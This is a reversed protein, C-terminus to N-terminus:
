KIEKEKTSSVFLINGIDEYDSFIKIGEAKILESRFGIITLDADASKESIIAKPNTMSEVPIPEVNSPSIPLRGSKILKLLDERKRDMDDAPHTAFIKIQGKRWEPHGLIIYGLLIMLNANEFDMISIWIHIDKKYGFGKYSTNLVCLDFNTSELLRYNKLVEILTEPNTRSFEFLIMNNGKGSIGSLQIVQAIASTYSPSIITDLYVRNRSGAALNILKNLVEKSQQNTENTLYGEIFHIYTGFGYKFSLWRLVDFASRRVFTDQSICIAFPRWYKDPDEKDARQAFIQLQRSLQFIVGRFLKGLGKREREYSTVMYYILAMIVLSITAYGGNMKFMLWISFVAGILSLYWKSRFTPRYSPDAAFHELLSITCIAGYTLMFFMSITKAVFNLEGIAVFVFAIIVTLLSGNFPENSVPKGRAFWNNIFKTPFIDDMGIAQITRPAVMISGLASSLSAAALGVPIIPGWVAIRQMILQDSALEEPTASIALKYAVLIYIVMGALTAWLTGNPISRSPNKLDGSLGLGAAMGTFAPFIITFVYFFPDAGSIRNNMVFQIGSHTSKGALFFIIATFLLAVVMYLAKMGLNAGRTLIILALIAMTPITIFRADRININYSESLFNFVPEFAEGFAIIYFAVSIAQSLYLAIGISAGINLGFSRSIIYYAGGGLVKQNTAIEAVALATPITVLHGLAIIGMAGIFGTHGVAYGFRLFLIAGLITSVTTMFVPMTGFNAKHNVLTRAM